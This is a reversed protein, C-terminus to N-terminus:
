SEFHFVVKNWNSKCVKALNRVKNESGCSVWNPRQQFLMRKWTTECTKETFGQVKHWKLTGVFDTFIALCLKRFDGLCLNQTNGFIPNKGGLDDIRIPTERIFWGNQPVVTKPFVRIFGNCNLNLGPSTTTKWISPLTCSALQTNQFKTFSKVINQPFGPLSRKWAKSHNRTVIDSSMKTASDWIYTLKCRYEEITHKGVLFQFMVALVDRDNMSHQIYM